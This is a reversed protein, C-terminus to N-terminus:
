DSFGSFVVAVVAAREGKMEVTRLEAGEKLGRAGGEGGGGGGMREQGSIVMM